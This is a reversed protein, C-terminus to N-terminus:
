RSMTPLVNGELAGRQKQPFLPSDSLLEQGLTPGKFTVQRPDRTGTTQSIHLHAIFNSSNRPNERDITRLTQTQLTRSLPTSNTGWSLPTSNTGWSVLSKRKYELTGLKQKAWAQSRLGPRSLHGPAPQSAQPRSLDQPSSSCRPKAKLAKRIGV